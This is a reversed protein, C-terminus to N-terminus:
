RPWRAFDFLRGNADRTLLLESIDAEASNEGEFYDEWQRYFQQLYDLLALEPNQELREAYDAIKFFIPLRVAGLDEGDAEGPVTEQGDRWAKAFHLALYKLLTTKGAGPAGLIVSCASQGRVVDALDVSETVVKTASADLEFAAERVEVFSESLPESFSVTRKPCVSLLM